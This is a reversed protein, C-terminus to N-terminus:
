NGCLMVLVKPKKSLNKVFKKMEDFRQSRNSLLNDLNLSTSVQIIIVFHLIFNDFTEVLSLLCDIVMMM